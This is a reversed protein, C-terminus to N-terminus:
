ELHQSIGTHHVSAVSPISFPRIVRAPSGSNKASMIAHWALSASLALVLLASPLHRKWPLPKSALKIAM